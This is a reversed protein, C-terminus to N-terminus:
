FNLIVYACACINVFCVPVEIDTVSILQQLLADLYAYAREKPFDKDPPGLKGHYWACPKEPERDVNKNKSNTQDNHAKRQEEPGHRRVFASFTEDFASQMIPNLFQAKVWQDIRSFKPKPDSRREEWAKQVDLLRGAERRLDADSVTKPIIEARAGWMLARSLIVSETEAASATAKEAASVDFCKETQRM